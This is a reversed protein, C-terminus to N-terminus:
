AYSLHKKIVYSILVRHDSENRISLMGILITGSTSFSCELEDEDNWCETIGNCRTSEIEVVTGHNIVPINAYDLKKQHKVKDTIFFFM